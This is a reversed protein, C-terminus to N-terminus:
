NSGVVMVHHWLFNSHVYWNEGRFIKKNNIKTKSFMKSKELLIKTLIKLFSGWNEIKNKYFYLKSLISPKNSFNNYNSPVFNIGLNIGHLFQSWRSAMAQIRGKKKSDCSDIWFSLITQDGQLINNQSTKLIEVHFM